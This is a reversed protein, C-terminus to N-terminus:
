FDGGGFDGGGFDGGGFDGGGVDDMGGFGGDGAMADGGFGGGFMGFGGGLMSGLFLGPLLGGGFFGGAWPMYAPGANWYPMQQGNMMVQRSQPELGDEIVAADAACVPVPRPAGGPPAWDADTTSPGHRPDFFCPPRREPAAEGNLRAKAATMAFRGEELSSAVGEMDEVHRARDWADDAATYCEVARHYDAKAQPDASPMEVDLDLARIDEGLAVLDERAFAKVEELQAKQERRRRLRGLGLLAIPVGLLLLLFGSGGGGGGRGRDRSGPVSGGNARAEGVGDVFETLVVAPGQDKKSLSSTALEAAAGPQLDGISGARFASGIIAAYTGREGVGNAIEELAENPNGGAADAASAPLIAIRLPGAGQERIRERLSNAEDEDIAQEASPDVYVTDDRLADAADTLPSATLTQAMAPACLLCLVLAALPLIPRM